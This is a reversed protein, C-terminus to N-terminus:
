ILVNTTAFRDLYRIEGFVIVWGHIISIAINIVLRPCFQLVILLRLVFFLILDEFLQLGFYLDKLFVILTDLIISVNVGWHVSSMKDVIFPKITGYFRLYADMYIPMTCRRSNFKHLLWFDRFADLDVFVTLFGIWLLILIFIILIIITRQLCNIFVLIRLRFRIDVSGIFM